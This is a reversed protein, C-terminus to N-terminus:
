GSTALDDVVPVPGPDVGEAAALHLSVLDGFWALDFFHALPGDGGATVTIVDAVVERLTESVQDFRRAVAPDEGPHRLAVLTLVQRTVDGHEGWGALESHNADPQAAAFAPAKANENVQAKWRWAAVAGVGAGHVLPFTRGIRAAVAAPPSGEGFWQDRRAALQAAASAILDAAGPLLGAQALMLLPPVCLSGLAARAPLGTPVPVVTGGRQAARRGLAGGATIAVVTAGADWAADAAALVEATEGDASVAFVLTHRGVWAPPAAQRVVSVPVPSLPAAM